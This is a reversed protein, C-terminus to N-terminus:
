LSFDKDEGIHVLGPLSVVETTFCGTPMLLAKPPMLCNLYVTHARLPGAIGKQQNQWATGFNGKLHHTGQEPIATPPLM